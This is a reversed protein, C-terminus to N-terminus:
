GRAVFRDARAAEVMDADDREALECPCHGGLWANPQTFWLALEWDDFVCALEGIAEAVAARPTMSARHFQFLPVLIQGRWAIHVIGRGVILHALVSIPQGHHRGMSRAVEDGCALGGQARFAQSMEVFQLSRAQEFADHVRRPAALAEATRPAFRPEIAQQWGGFLRNGM